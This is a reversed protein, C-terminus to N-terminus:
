WRVGALIAMFPFEVFLLQQLPHLAFPVRRYLHQSHFNPAAVTSSQAAEKAEWSFSFSILISGLVM